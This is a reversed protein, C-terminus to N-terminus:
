RFFTTPGVEEEGMMVRDRSKRDMSDKIIELIQINTHLLTMRNITGMIAEEGVEM